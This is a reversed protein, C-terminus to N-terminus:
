HTQRLSSPLWLILLVKLTSVLTAGEESSALALLAALSFSAVKMPSSPEPRKEWSDTSPSYRMTPCLTTLMVSLCQNSDQGTTSSRKLSSTLYNSEVESPRVQPHRPV